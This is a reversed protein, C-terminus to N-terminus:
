LRPSRMTKGRGYVRVRPRHRSDGSHQRYSPILTLAAPGYGSSVRLRDDPRIPHVHGIWCSNPPRANVKSPTTLSGSETVDARIADLARGRCMQSDGVGICRPLDPGLDEPLSDLAKQFTRWRGRPHGGTDEPIGM